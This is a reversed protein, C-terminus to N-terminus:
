DPLRVGRRRRPAALLGALAVLGALLAAASIGPGAVRGVAAALTDTPPLGVRVTATDCGIPTDLDCVRYTFVDTGHFGADPTYTMRGTASDVSVTGHGPGALIVVSSADLSGDPDQDNALVVITVAQGSTTGATDDAASPPANVHLAVFATACGSPSGTDCVRYGFVDDGYFGAAPTYSVFGSVPNV